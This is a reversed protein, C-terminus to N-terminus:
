STTATALFAEAAAFIHARREEKLRDLTGVMQAMRAQTKFFSRNADVFRWYLGDMVDTWSYAVGDFLTPQKPKAYDSMKLIYNSGCIYPKTSFIGGDSFIGMGFVNPGMVWDSSDVFMEMFWRYAEQPEIECLMMLNSAIMLREIHHAWGYRNLKHIVDDLPLLGTTGDYWAGTLKREHNFFNRTQQEVGFTRDIGRVFERWGCIQRVFGELSNLPIDHEDAHALARDLIEEPTLLGLNMLPSLASHFLIPDRVSLADEYPGFQDFREDLFRRLWALSQRRTTPMWWTEASVDGPHDAFTTSVIEIVDHVQKTATAPPTGPIDVKKPLAKRNEDDFSWRDGHPSGDEDVLINLRRRQWRYFDAMLPRHEQIWERFSERDTVFMPSSLFTLQLGRDNAFTKIRDEFFRDEIEWMILHDFGHADCWAGLRDEYAGDDTPMLEHYDVDCNRAALEDRYSRMAALFLVIKQKHHRVYRCLGLDEAMFFRCSEYPVLHSPPFLQNGLIVFGTAQPNEVDNM